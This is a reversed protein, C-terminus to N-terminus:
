STYDVLTIIFLQTAKNQLAVVATDLYVRHATCEEQFGVHVNLSTSQYIDCPQQVKYHSCQQQSGNVQYYEVLREAM